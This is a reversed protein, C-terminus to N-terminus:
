QPGKEYCIEDVGIRHLGTLRANDLRREVRRTVIGHVTRVTTV